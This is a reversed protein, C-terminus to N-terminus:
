PEPAPTRSAQGIGEARGTPFSIRVHAGRDTATEVTGDLQVVLARVLQWGFDTSGSPFGDPFGVGDDDVALAVAEGGVRLSVTVVGDRTGPFAYKLANTVLESVILGAPMALEIPLRVDDAEV